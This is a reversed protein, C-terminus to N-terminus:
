RPLQLHESRLRRHGRPRFSADQEAILPSTPDTRELPGLTLGTFDAAYALSVTNFM